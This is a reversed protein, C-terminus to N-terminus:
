RCTKSAKITAIKYNGILHIIILWALGLTFIVTGFPPIFETPDNM